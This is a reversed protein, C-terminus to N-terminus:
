RCTSNVSKEVRPLEFVNEPPTQFKYPFFHYQLNMGKIREVLLIIDISNYRSVSSFKNASDLIDIFICCELLVEVEVVQLM